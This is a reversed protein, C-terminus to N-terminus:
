IDVTKLINRISEARFRDREIPTIEGKIRTIMAPQFDVFIKMPSTSDPLMIVESRVGLLLTTVHRMMEETTIQRAYKLIGFSRCVSDQLANKDINNLADNELSIIRRAVKQLNKLSDQESVGLTVQNSLQYISAKSESGEGYFGRFILGFKSCSHVISKLEGSMELVPVHLMVSARMGTGINTPCETLYGLNKDFAYKLKESIKNDIENCLKYAADLCEGCKLVQIRLHDEEGIMISISEDDSLLLIRGTKGNAFNPSICHREVMAYTESVGLTEMEIKRLKIDGFDCELIKNCIENNINSFKNADLRSPFPGGDINRALRVRTSIAVSKNNVEYWLM